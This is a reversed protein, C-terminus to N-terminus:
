KTSTASTVVLRSVVSEDKPYMVVVSANPHNALYLTMEALRVDIEGLVYQTKSDVRLRSTKCASCPRIILEGTESRPLELMRPGVERSLEIVRVQATASLSSLALLIVAAALNLIKM